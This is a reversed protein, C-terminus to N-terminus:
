QIYYYHSVYHSHHTLSVLFFPVRSHAHAADTEVIWVLLATVYCYLSVTYVLLVTSLLYRLTGELGAIEADDEDAIEAFMKEVSQQCATQGSSKGKNKKAAGAGRSNSSWM